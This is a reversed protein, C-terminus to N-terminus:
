ASRRPRGGRGPRCGPTRWISSYWVGAPLHVAQEFPIMTSSASCVPQPSLGAALRRALTLPRGQAPDEQPRRSTPQTTKRPGASSVRGRKGALDLDGPWRQPHVIVGQFRDMGEWQPQYPKAHNYYGPCMWLFGTTFRLQRGTGGRIVEATWRRDESSWSAATVQHLCRIYRGLGDEDIVEDLYALIEEGAAIPPGRWPKFRYGYTFLDSDSRVGPYRHTWWTGGRNDQADLVVFTWDPFQERLHHAAGIGSVGAGVILVDVHGADKIEETGQGPATAPATTATM